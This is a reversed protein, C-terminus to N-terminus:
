ARQTTDPHRVAALVVSAFREIAALQAPRTDGPLAVTVWDVGVAALEEISAIVRGEDVPGDAMSLGEPVFCVTLPETRAVEEAYTQAYALASVLDDISAM